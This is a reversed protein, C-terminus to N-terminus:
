VIKQKYKLEYDAIQKKLGAHPDQQELISKLEQRLQNQAEEVERLRENCIVELEDIRAVEATLDNKEADERLFKIVSIDRHLQILLTAGRLIDDMLQQLPDPKKAKKFFGFM